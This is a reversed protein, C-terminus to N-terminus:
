SKSYVHGTKKLRRLVLRVHKTAPDRRYKLKEYLIDAAPAALTVEFGHEIRPRDELLALEGSFEDFVAKWAPADEDTENIVLEEHDGLRAQLKQMHKIGM